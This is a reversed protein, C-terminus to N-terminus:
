PWIGACVRVPIGNILQRRTGIPPRDSKKGQPVLAERVAWRGDTLAGRM